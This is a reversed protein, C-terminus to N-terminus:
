LFPLIKEIINFIEKAIRYIIAENQTYNIQQFQVKTFNIKLIDKLDFPNVEDWDYCQLLDFVDDKANNLMILNEKKQKVPILRVNEYFNNVIFSQLNELGALNEKLPTKKLLIAFYFLLHDLECINSKRMMHGANEPVQDNHSNENLPTFSVLSNICFLKRSKQSNYTNETYSLSGERQNSRETNKMLYEIKLWTKELGYRKLDEDANQKEREVDTMKRKKELGYRNISKFTISKKDSLDEEVFEIDKIYRNKGEYNDYFITSFNAFRLGNEKRGFNKLEAWEIQFKLNTASEM